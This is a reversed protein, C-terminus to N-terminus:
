PAQFQLQVSAYTVGTGAGSCAVEIQNGTAVDDHSTDIVAPVAATSSDYEGADITLNTSLMSTAGKKVTFTVTGGSSAGVCMAAVGILNYGNITSPVRLYAKDSTTLAVSGNIPVEVTIATGVLVPGSLTVVWDAYTGSGLIVTVNVVLDGTGTDYSTVEGHMWNTSNHAIKVSMGPQLSKGTEVNISCAGRSITKGTSSGTTTAALNLAVAVANAESVFTPLAAIFADALASFTSPSSRSPPTPLASIIM